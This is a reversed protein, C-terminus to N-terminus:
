EDKKAEMDKVPETQEAEAAKMAVYMERFKDNEEEEAADAVEKGAEELWEDRTGPCCFNFTRYFRHKANSVDSTGFFVMLILLSGSWLGGIAAWVEAVTHDRITIERVVFNSITFTVAGWLNGDMNTYPEIRSRRRRLTNAATVPQTGGHDTNDGSVTPDTTFDTSFADTFQYGIKAGLGNDSGIINQAHIPFSTTDVDYLITWATDGKSTDKIKDFSISGVGANGYGPFVVKTALIGGTTAAATGEYPVKGKEMLYAELVPPNTLINRTMVAAFAMSVYTDPTNYTAAANGTNAFYFCMPKYETDRYRYGLPTKWSRGAGFNAASYTGTAGSPTATLAEDQTWSKDCDKPDGPCSVGSVILTTVSVM